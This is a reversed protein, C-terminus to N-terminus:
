VIISGEDNSKTACVDIVEYYSRGYNSRIDEKLKQAVQNTLQTVYAEEENPFSLNRGKRDIKQDQLVKNDKRSWYAASHYNSNYCHICEHALLVAPSNFGMNEKAWPKRHNKRFIIGHTDYFGITRRKASFYNNDSTYTITLKYSTDTILTDLIKVRRSNRTSNENNIYYLELAESEKLYDLAKLTNRLFRDTIDELSRSEIYTYDIIGTDCSICIM